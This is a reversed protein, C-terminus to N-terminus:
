SISNFHKRLLKGSYPNSVFFGSQGWPAGTVSPATAIIMESDVRDPRIWASITLDTPFMFATMSVFDNAGDFSLAGGVKGTAWTAGNVTGHNGDWSDNATNGDGEDLQWWSVEGQQPEGTAEITLNDIAVGDDCGGECRLIVSIVVENFSETSQLYVSKLDGSPPSPPGHGSWSGVSVDDMYFDAKLENSTDVYGWGFKEQPNVFEIAEIGM